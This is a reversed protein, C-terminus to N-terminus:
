HGRRKRKSAPEDLEGVETDPAILTATAIRDNLVLPAMKFVMPWTKMEDFLKKQLAWATDPIHFEVPDESSTANYDESVSDFDLADALKMYRRLQELDGRSTNATFRLLWRDRETLSVTYM